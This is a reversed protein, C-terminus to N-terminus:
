LCDEADVIGDMLPEPLVQRALSLAYQTCWSILDDVVNRTHSTSCPDTILCVECCLEVVYRLSYKKALCYCLAM